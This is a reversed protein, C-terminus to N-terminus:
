FLIAKVFGVSDFSTGLFGLIVISSTEEAVSSDNPKSLNGEVPDTPYGVWSQWSRVPSFISFGALSPSTSPKAPLAVSMRM